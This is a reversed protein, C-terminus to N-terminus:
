QTKAVSAVLRNTKGFSIQSLTSGLRASFFRAGEENLHVTDEFSSGNTVWDSATIYTANQESALSQLHARMETWVPLSYFTERHRPSMPMEVFFFKAGHEHALDIMAQIPPSFGKKRRVIADCREVFSPVDKAEL